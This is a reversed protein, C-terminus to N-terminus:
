FVGGRVLQQIIIVSKTDRPIKKIIEAIEIKVNQWITAYKPM